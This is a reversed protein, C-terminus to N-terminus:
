RDWPAVTLLRRVQGHLRLEFREGSGGLRLQGATQLNLTLDLDDADMHINNKDSLFVYNGELVDGTRVFDFMLALHIDKSATNSKGVAFLFGEVRGNSANSYSEVLTFDETLMGKLTDPGFDNGFLENVEAKDAILDDGVKLGHAAGTDYNVDIEALRWTGNTDPKADPAKICTFLLEDVQQEKGMFITKNVYSVLLKGDVVRGSSELSVFEERPKMGWAASTDIILTCKFESGATSNTLEYTAGAQKAFRSLAGGELTYAGALIEAGNGGIRFVDGNEIEHPDGVNRVVQISNGDVLWTGKASEGTTVAAAHHSKSHCGAIVAVLALAPLLAATHTLRLHM